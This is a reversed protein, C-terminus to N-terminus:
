DDARFIVSFPRPVDSLRQFFEVEIFFSLNEFMRRIAQHGQTQAPPRRLLGGAAPPRHRGTVALALRSLQPERSMFEGYVAVEAIEYRNNSANRNFSLAVDHASDVILEARRRPLPEVIEASAIHELQGTTRYLRDGSSSTHLELLGNQVLDSAFARVAIPNVGFERMLTSRGVTLAEVPKQRGARAILRRAGERLKAPDLGFYRRHSFLTAPRMMTVPNPSPILM